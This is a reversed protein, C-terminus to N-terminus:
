GKDKKGTPRPDPLGLVNDSLPLLLVRTRTCARDLIPLRDQEGVVSPDIGTLFRDMLLGGADAWTFITYLAGESQIAPHLGSETPRDCSCLAPTTADSSRPATTIAGFGESM